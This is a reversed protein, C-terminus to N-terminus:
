NSLVFHSRYAISTWKVTVETKTFNLLLGVSYSCLDVPIFRIWFDGSLVMSDARLKPKIKSIKVFVKGERFRILDWWKYNRLGAIRMHTFETADTRVEVRFCVTGNNGRNDVGFKVVTISKVIKRLRFYIAELRNLVRKCQMYTTLAGLNEWIM